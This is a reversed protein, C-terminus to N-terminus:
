GSLEPLTQLYKRFRDLARGVALHSIKLEKAIERNSPEEGVSARDLFCVAVKFATSDGNKRALELAAQVAAISARRDMALASVEDASPALQDFNDPTTPVLVERGSARLHDLAARHALVFLYAQPNRAPDIRNEDRLQLYKMLVESAVDEADQVNLTSTLWYSLNILLRALDENTATHDAVREALTRLNKSANDSNDVDM